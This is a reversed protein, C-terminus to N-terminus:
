SDSGQDQERVPQILLRAGGQLSLNEPLTFSDNGGEKSSKFVPAVSTYNTGKTGDAKVYNSMLVVNAIPRSM